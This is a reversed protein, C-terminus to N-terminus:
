QSRVKEAGSQAHGAQALLRRQANHSAKMWKAAAAARVERPYEYEPPDRRLFQQYPTQPETKYDAGEAMTFSTIETLDSLMDGLKPQM